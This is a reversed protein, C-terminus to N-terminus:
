ISSIKRRKSFIVTSQGESAILRKKYSALACVFVFFCLLVSAASGMKGTGTNIPFERSLLPACAQNAAGQALRPVRVPSWYAWRWAARTCDAVAVGM